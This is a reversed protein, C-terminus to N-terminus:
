LVTSDEEILGPDYDDYQENWIESGNWLWLVEKEQDEVAGNIGQSM